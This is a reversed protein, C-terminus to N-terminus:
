SKEDEKIEDCVKQLLDIHKKWNDGYQENDILFQIIEQITTKDKHDM